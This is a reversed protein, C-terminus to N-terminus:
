SDHGQRLISRQVQQGTTWRTVMTGRIVGRDQFIILPFMRDKHVINYRSDINRQMDDLLAHLSFRIQIEIVRLRCTYSDRAQSSLSRIVDHQPVITHGSNIM